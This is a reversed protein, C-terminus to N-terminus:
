EKEIKINERNKEIKTRRNDKSSLKKNLYGVQNSVKDL